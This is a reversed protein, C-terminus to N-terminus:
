RNAEYEDKQKLKFRMKNNTGYLYKLVRLRHNGHTTIHTTIGDPPGVGNAGPEILIDQRLGQIKIDAILQAWNYEKDEIILDRMKIHDYDSAVEKLQKYVILSDDFDIRYM